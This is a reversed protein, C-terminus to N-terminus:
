HLVVVLMYCVKIIWHIPAFGDFPGFMADNHVPRSVILLKASNTGAALDLKRPLISWNHHNPILPASLSSKFQKMELTGKM